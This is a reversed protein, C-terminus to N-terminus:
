EYSLGRPGATIPRIGEYQGQDKKGKIGKGNAMLYIANRFGWLSEVSPFGKMGPVKRYNHLFWLILKNADSGYADFLRAFLVLEKKGSGVYECEFINRYEAVWFKYLNVQPLRSKPKKDRVPKFEPNKRRPMRKTAEKVIKDMEDGNM